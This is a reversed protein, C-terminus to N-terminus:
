LEREFRAVSRSQIGFVDFFGNYSIQAEGKEYVADQWDSAFKAARVRIENWSLNM